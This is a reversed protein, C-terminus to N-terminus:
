RPGFVFTRCYRFSCGRVFTHGAIGLAAQGIGMGALVWEGVATGLNVSVPGSVRIDHVAGDDGILQWVRGEGLPLCSHRLLDQPTEPHGARALYDPSAVLMRLNDDVRQALLSSPALEGIRLALDYGQEVIDVIADTLNLDLRVDPYLRLFEPVFPVVHTRGFSSSTTVRLLGSVSKAHHSLVSRAEEVDDLIRRAHELFIEGDPTM